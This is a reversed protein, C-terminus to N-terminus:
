LPKADEDLEVIPFDLEELGALVVSKDGVVVLIMDEVPLYEAALADIEPKEIERLIRNQEDIFDDPLDYTVINSLLSLKQAPTEYNRADSQGIARQTFALEAATIGQNAYGGIENVFEVVSAATADTRVGAGAVFLGYLDNGSFGSRAGYTYGKDERLNLNIRSNFAGGLAYNTLSARYYEGTADYPLAQRGVRIESQAANPKDILYLTGADLAPFPEIEVATPADGSWEELVSLTELLEADPIDSVAIVSATAPSYAQEYFSKVDDLTITGVTDSLGSSPYAISNDRGLLLLDFANDAVTEAQTKSQEISQLTQDKLRAFDEEAFAPTFLREAAIDMTEALNESLSRVTVTTFRGGASVNVSSGLKQLRNSLEENTSSQTAENLMRATLSALGLKDLPEM